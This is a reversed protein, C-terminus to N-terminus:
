EWYRYFNPAEDFTGILYKTEENYPICYRYTSGVCQINDNNKVDIHSFLGCKWVIGAGKVLVKDFPQFTKPDFRPKNVKFTSWDRNENSPFLMCEGRGLYTGDQYFWIYGYEADDSLYSVKIHNKDDVDELEGDGFLPSYLKTGRKCNRLIEAINMKEMSM